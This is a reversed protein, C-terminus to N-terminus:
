NLGYFLMGNTKENHKEFREMAVEFLRDRNKLYNKAALTISLVTVVSNVDYDDIHSCMESIAEDIVDFRDQHMLTDVRMMLTDIKEQTSASNDNQIELVDLKMYNVTKFSINSAGGPSSGLDPPGFGGTNGIVSCPM